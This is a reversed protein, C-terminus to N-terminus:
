ANIPDPKKEQNEERAITRKGVEAIEKVLSRYDELQKQYVREIAVAWEPRPDIPIMTFCFLKGAELVRELNRTGHFCNIRENAEVQETM